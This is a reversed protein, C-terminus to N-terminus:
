NITVKLIGKVVKTAQKVDLDSHRMQLVRVIPCLLGESKEVSMERLIQRSEKLLMYDAM